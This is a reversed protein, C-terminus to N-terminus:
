ASVCMVRAVSALHCIREDALGAWTWEGGARTLAWHAGPHYVWLASEVEDPSGGGHDGTDTMGHDGLLVLLTDEHPMGPMAAADLMRVIAEVQEDLQELKAMMAPSDVDGVHGAHDVGLYHGVLVDWEGVRETLLTPVNAWVGEDVTHLDKVNFSPYPMALAFEDPFQLVALPPRRPM